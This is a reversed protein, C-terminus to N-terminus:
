FSTYIEIFSLIEALWSCPILPFPADSYRLSHPVRQYLWRSPSSIESLSWYREFRDRGGHSNPHMIKKKLQFHRQRISLSDNLPISNWKVFRASAAMQILAFHEIPFEIPLEILISRRISFLKRSSIPFHSLLLLLELLLLFRIMSSRMWRASAILPARQQGKSQITIPARMVTVTM